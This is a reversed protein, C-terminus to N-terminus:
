SNAERGAHFAKTQWLELDAGAAPGTSRELVLFARKGAQKMDAQSYCLTSVRASTSSATYSHLSM